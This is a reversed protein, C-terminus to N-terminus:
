IEQIESSMAICHELICQIQCPGIIIRVANVRSAKCWENLNYLEIFRMYIFCLSRGLPMSMKKGSLNCYSLSFLQTVARSLRVPIGFVFLFSSTVCNDYEYIVFIM